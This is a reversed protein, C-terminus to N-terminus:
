QQNPAPLKPPSAIRETAPPTSASPPIVPAIKPQRMTRRRRRRRGGGETAREVRGNITALGAVTLFLLANSTTHLTFDFFSHVLVAFCGALAGIAVGRRFTDQSSSRTLGLRFLTVIFFLGLLAGIIGADSLTQLYDNHAQEVRLGGGRTDYMPYAVGYSGLGTGTLPHNRIVDLTVRWFHARGTTPDASTVTGMLRNLVPEGGLMVVGAFISLLLALGLAARVVAARISAGSTENQQSSSRSKRRFGTMAVLFVIEAIFSLIGGRSNTMILAVGMMLAAFIYIFRKDREIAGSFLLGLPLALTLEMYGAFHHRNIFPGFPTSEKLERLWLLKTPSTFSQILGLIALLFGFIIITRVLLRLRIPGDTFALVAGFYVLLATVQILVLRTSYPDLSLSRVAPQSILGGGLDKGLPLLQVLGILIMGVLPWQLANRSLRLTRSSWADVVWLVLILAASAQFVALSWYHVTGYALTSLVIAVCIVLFIFRSALTRGVEDLAGTELAAPAQEKVRQALAPQQEAAANSISTTM